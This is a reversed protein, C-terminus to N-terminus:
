KVPGPSGASVLRGPRTRFSKVKVPSRRLLYDIYIYARLYGPTLGGPSARCPTAEGQGKKRGCRIKLTLTDSYNNVFM